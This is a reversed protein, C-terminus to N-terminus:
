GPIFSNLHSCTLCFSLFYKLQSVSNKFVRETSLLMDPVSTVMGLLCLSKPTSKATWTIGAWKVHPPKYLFRELFEKVLKSSRPGETLDYVKALLAIVCRCCGKVADIHGALNNFLFFEIEPFLSKVEDFLPPDMVSLKLMWSELIRATGLNM